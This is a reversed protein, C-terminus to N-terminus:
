LRDIRKMEAEDLTWSFIDMNDQLHAESSAKPIAIIQRQVLWRLAVQAASKNHDGGIRALTADNAIAGVALPRHATVVVGHDRCHRRQASAPGTRPAVAGPKLETLLPAHGYQIGLEGETGTAILMEVLGSYIKEEASVVDCHVTMAM